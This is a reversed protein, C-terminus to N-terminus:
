LAGNEKGGMGKRFRYEQIAQAACVGIGDAIWDFLDRSRGILGQYWEDLGGWLLGVLLIMLWQRGRLLNPFRTRVVSGWLLSFGAYEIIHLIKDYAFLPAVERPVSQISSGAIMLATWGIAAPIMYVKLQGKEM